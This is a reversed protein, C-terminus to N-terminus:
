FKYRFGGTFTRPELPLLYGFVGPIFASRAFFDKSDALNKVQLYVEVQGGKLQFTASADARGISPIRDLPQQTVTFWYPSRYHYNGALVIKSDDGLPVDYSGGVQYQWRSVFPLGTAGAKAAQTSPDLEAYRNDSYTLNGYLSLNRVPRVTAETEVGWVHAKAANQFIFSGTGTDALTQLNSIQEFYAAVNLTARRDITELKTGLEYSWADEPRYSAGFITPDAIILSNFGGARYGRSVTGYVMARNSINYQLNFRPTWVQASLRNAGAVLPANLGAASPTLSTISKKDDSFRLGVSATLSDTFSYDAQGYVAISRSKTEYHTPAFQIGFAGFDDNTFTQRAREDYYFVGTIWNLRGDLAKGLAQVEETFQHQAATSQRNFGTVVTTTGPITYGGSFDLSLDDTLHSYATISRLTVGGFDYGLRGSVTYQRVNGYQRRPTDTEYFGNQPRGTALDLPIFYQGDTLSAGYRGTIVAELGDVDTVGVSVQAGYKRYTGVKEDLTRDYIWGENRVNYFGSAAVALHSAIPAGVSAKAKVEEFTGYSVDTNLWTEGNPQRTILKVAGTMSNRGYLTGQPGRLVEVRVIDALDYNAASLRSQYVDDIYLAVPSESTISGGNVELAGRLAIAIANPSATVPVIQLGPTSAALDQVRVVAREQLTANNLATVAVPTDQLNQDRRQATVVIDGPAADPQATAAAAPVEAKAESAQANATAATFGLVGMSTTMLLALKTM